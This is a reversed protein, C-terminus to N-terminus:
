AGPPVVEGRAALVSFRQVTDRVGEALPIDPLPGVLEAVGTSTTDAPFPLADGRVEILGRAAPEAAEILGVLDEMACVHGSVDSVPAGQVHTRAAAVFAAAVEAGHQLTMAGGFPITYRRGTAAALMATTPASTLGQDRGAGYVTHPRLGISAVGSERWYISAIGEDARKYVGYLTSPAGVMSPRENGGDDELADYAAISSAYVVTGMREARRRVAEFVRVTGEVNVRAGLAPEARCFPVQLAALHVVTTIAHDDLARELQGDVTIDGVVWPVAGAEHPELLLRLRRRDDTRDFAVVPAGEQVLQRVVWAGICGSAGTVLTRSVGAM